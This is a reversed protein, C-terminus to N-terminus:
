FAPPEDDPIPCRGRPKARAPPAPPPPPPPPAKPLRVEHQVSVGKVRMQLYEYAAGVVADLGTTTEEALKAWKEVEEDDIDQCDEQLLRRLCGVMTERYVLERELHDRIQDLNM